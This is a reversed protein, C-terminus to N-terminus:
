IKLWHLPDIPKGQYRLEFYLSSESFGGSKGVYAIVDQRGVIDGVNKTLRQNRAYLSMYGQGHDVILTFGFGQLWNAFIVRGASIVHVPNGQSAMIVLGNWLLDSGAIQEGYRHQIQGIVPWELPKKLAVDASGPLIIPSPATKAQRQLEKLVAELAQKQHKLQTIKAHDTRIEQQLKTMTRMRLQQQQYLQTQNHLAQNRLQQLKQEADTIKHYHIELSNLNAHLEQLMVTRKEVLLRYLVLNRGIHNIGNPNLLLKFPTPQSLLLNSRLQQRLLTQQKKVQMETVNREALLHQLQGQQRTIQHELTSVKQEANAIVLEQQRLTDHLQTRQKEHKSLYHQWQHLKQNVVTLSTQSYNHGAFAIGWVSCSISILIRFLTSM